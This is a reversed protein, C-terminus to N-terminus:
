CILDKTHKKLPLLPKEFFTFPRSGPILDKLILSITLITFSLRLEITKLFLIQSFTHTVM